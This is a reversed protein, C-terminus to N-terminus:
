SVRPLVVYISNRALNRQMRRLSAGRLSTLGYVQVHHPLEDREIRLGLSRVAGASIRTVAWGPQGSPCGYTLPEGALRLSFELHFSLGTEGEDLAFAASPPRLAPAGVTPPNQNHQPAHWPPIRRLLGEEDPIDQDSV